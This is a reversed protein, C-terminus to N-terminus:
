EEDSLDCTASAWEPPETSESENGSDTASTALVGLAAFLDSEVQVVQKPEARAKPGGEGEERAKVDAMWERFVEGHQERDKKVRRFLENYRNIGESTWGNSTQHSPKEKFLIGGETYRLAVDSEWRWKKKVRSGRPASQARGQRHIDVWRDWANELVLYIFAEDSATFLDDDKRPQAAMRKKYRSRGLVCPVFRDCTLHFGEGQRGQLFDDLSMELDEEDLEEWLDAM